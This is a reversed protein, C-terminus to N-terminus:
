RQPENGGGTQEVAVVGGDVDHAPQDLRLAGFDDVEAVVAADLIHDAGRQLFISVGDRQRGVLAAMDFVEFVHDVHQLFAASRMDFDEAAAAAGDGRFLDALQLGVTDFADIVRVVAHVHAQDRHDLVHHAARAGRAQRHFLRMADVDGALAIGVFDGDTAHEARDLFACQVFGFERM